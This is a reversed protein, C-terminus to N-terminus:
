PRDVGREWYFGAWDALITHLKIAHRSTMQDMDRKLVPQVLVQPYSESIRVYNDISQNGGFLQLTLKAHNVLNVIDDPTYASRAVM